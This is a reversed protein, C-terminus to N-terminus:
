EGCEKAIAANIELREAETFKDWFSAVSNYKGYVGESDTGWLQDPYEAYGYQNPGASYTGQMRTKDGHQNLVEWLRNYTSDSIGALCEAVEDPTWSNCWENPQITENEM